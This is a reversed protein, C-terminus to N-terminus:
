NACQQPHNLSLAKRLFRTSQQLHHQRARFVRHSFTVLMLMHQKTDLALVRDLATADFAGVSRLVGRWLLALRRDHMVLRTVASSNGSASTSRGLTDDAPSESNEKQASGAGMDSSATARSPEQSLLLAKLLRELRWMVQLLKEEILAANGTTHQTSYTDDSHNTTSATIADNQKARKCSPECSEAEDGDVEDDGEASSNSSSSQTSEDVSTSHDNSDEDAGRQQQQQQQQQQRESTLLAQYVDLLVRRRQMAMSPQHGSSFCEPEPASSSSEGCNDTASASASTDDQCQAQPLVPTPARSSASSATGDDDTPAALCLRTLAPTDQHAITRAITLLLSSPDAVVAQAIKRHRDNAAHCRLLHQLRLRMTHSLVASIVLMLTHESHMPTTGIHKLIAQFYPLWHEACARKHIGARVQDRRRQKQEHDGDSNADQQPQQQEASTQLEAWIGNFVRQLFPRIIPQAYSSQMAKLLAAKHRRMAAPKAEESHTTNQLSIRFSQPLLLDLVQKEITAKSLPQRQQQPALKATM